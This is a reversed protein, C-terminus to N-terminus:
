RAIGNEGLFDTILSAVKDPDEVCPLHGAGEVLEFRGGAILDITGRVLDPPTSGDESGGIGLVPMAIKGMSETMDADRIAACTGLYGDQTTRTLMNRWVLTEEPKEARFRASLWREMIPDALVEIGGKEIAAMRENWMDPTGIRAATDMLIMARMREPQRAALGQAIMGGVSLGCVVVKDLTLHDLLGILDDVHDDMAYPAPTVESLGHGRKDYRVMCFRGDFRDVLRDWVRFDTGLSNSFVIVPKDAPGEVSYHLQVGNVRTVNM